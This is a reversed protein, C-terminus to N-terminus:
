LIEINTFKQLNKKNNLNRNAIEEYIKIIKILEDKSLNEYNLKEKLNPEKKFFYNNSYKLSWDDITKKIKILSMSVNFYKQITQINENNQKYEMLINYKRIFTKNKFM